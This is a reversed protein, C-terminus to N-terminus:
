INMNFFERMFNESSNIFSQPFTSGFLRSLIFSKGVQRAGKILLCEKMGKEQKQVKWSLLQDYMKRRLM